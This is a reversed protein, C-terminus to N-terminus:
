PRARGSVVVKKRTLIQKQVSVDDPHHLSGNQLNGEIREYM